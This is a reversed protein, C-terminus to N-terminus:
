ACSESICQCITTFAMKGEETWVIRSPALKTTVPSVVATHEALLQVYRRYFGIAGLFARLGKQTTPRTYGALAEVRHQPIAMTGEGVLHGQFEMRTGGWKCKTLNATLRSTRLRTLVQRVHQVHDEWSSSFVILDDMYPSCFSSDETFIGQMLEQFVALANKVGFPILLFDFRGKHCTFATKPIDPPSRM